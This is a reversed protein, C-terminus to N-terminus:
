DKVVSSPIVASTPPAPDLQSSGAPAPNGLRSGRGIRAIHFVAAATLALQLGALGLFLDVAHVAYRAGIYSTAVAGVVGVAAAVSTAMTTVFMRTDAAPVIGQAEMTASVVSIKLTASATPFEPATTPAPRPLEADREATAQSIEQSVSLSAYTEPSVRTLSIGLLASGTAEGGQSDGLGPEQRRRSEEM